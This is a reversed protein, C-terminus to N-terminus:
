PDKGFHYIASVEYLLLVTIFQGSVLLVLVVDMNVRKRRRNKVQPSGTRKLQEGQKTNSEKTKDTEKAKGRGAEATCKADDEHDYRRLRQRQKWYSEKAM